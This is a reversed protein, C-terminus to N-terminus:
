IDPTLNVDTAGGRTKSSSGFFGASLLAYTYAATLDPVVGIRMRSKM